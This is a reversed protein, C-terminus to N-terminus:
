ESSQVDGDSKPKLIEMIKEAQEPTLPVSSTQVVMKEEKKGAEAEMEEQRKRAFEALRDKFKQKPWPVLVPASHVFIVSCADFKGELARDFSEESPLWRDEIGRFNYYAYQAEAKAVDYGEEDDKNGLIDRTKRKREENESDILLIPFTFLDKFAEM